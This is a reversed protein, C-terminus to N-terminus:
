ARKPSAVRKKVPLGEECFSGTIQRNTAKGIKQGTM